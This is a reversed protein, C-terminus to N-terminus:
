AAGVNVTLTFTRPDRAYGAPKDPDVFELALDRTGEGVVDYLLIDYGKPDSTHTSPEQTRTTTYALVNQDPESDPDWPDGEVWAYGPCHHDYPLKVAVVDGIDAEVVTGDAAQTVTVTHGQPELSAPLAEEAESRSSCAALSTFAIVAMLTRAKRPERM